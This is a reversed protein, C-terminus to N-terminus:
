DNYKSIFCLSILYKCMLSITLRHGTEFTEKLTEDSIIIDTILKKFYKQLDDSHIRLIQMKQIKPTYPSADSQSVSPINGCHPPFCRSCPLILKTNKISTNKNTHIHTWRDMWNFINPDLDTQTQAGPQKCATWWCQPGSLQPCSSWPGDATHIWWAPVPHNGPPSTVISHNFHAIWFCIRLRLSNTCHM